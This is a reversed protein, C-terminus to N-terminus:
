ETQKVTKIEMYLRSILTQVERSTKAFDGDVIIQLAQEVQGGQALTVVNGACIHFAAHKAKLQHYVPLHGTFPMGEKYIWKGLSCQDDRCIIGADLKEDSQGQVYKTLRERWKRHAEIAAIFDLGQVVSEDKLAGASFPPADDHEDSATAKFWDFLRM